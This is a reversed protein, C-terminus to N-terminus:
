GSHEAREGPFFCRVVVQDGVRLKPWNGRNGNIEVRETPVSPHELTEGHFLERQIEITRIGSTRLWDVPWDATLKLVTPGTETVTAEIDYM